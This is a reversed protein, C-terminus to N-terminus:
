LMVLRFSRESQKKNNESLNMPTKCTVKFEKPFRQELKKDAAKQELQKTIFISIKAM